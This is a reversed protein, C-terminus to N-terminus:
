PAYVCNKADVETLCMNLWEMNCKRFEIMGDNDREIQRVTRQRSHRLEPTIGYDNTMARSIGAKGKTGLLIGRRSAVKIQMFQPNELEM